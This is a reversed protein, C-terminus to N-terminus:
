DKRGVGYENEYEIGVGLEVSMRVSLRTEVVLEVKALLMNIECGVM